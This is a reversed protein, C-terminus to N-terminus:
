LIGQLSESQREIEQRLQVAHAARWLATQRGSFARSLLQALLSDIRDSSAEATTGIQLYSRYLSAFEEQTQAPPIPVEASVLRGRSINPMSGAAGSALKQIEIRMSTKGLLFALYEPLTASATRLRLRYILDPIMLRPRTAHVLACAGVLARTNKRAFLIDGSKVELESKPELNTPLAKNEDDRYACWTVSSLKLVGWEGVHAPRNECRPSWGGEVAELIEGLAVTKWGMPNTAPDGFMKLFLAPLVRDAVANAEARLRRLHDALDLIEVIRRQESLPPLPIRLAAYEAGNINPQAAVRRKSEVWGLYRESRTFYFLFRPDLLAPNPRFRILYGAFLAPGTTKEHLYTKGVTAGSRAFLVDGDDLEYPESSSTDAEVISDALLDGHSTIDTIRIYRPKLGSAPVARANAGYQPGLVCLNELPIAAWPKM